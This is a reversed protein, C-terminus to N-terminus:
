YPPETLFNWPTLYFPLLFSSMLFDSDIRSTGHRFLLFEPLVCFVLSLLNDLLCYFLVNCFRTVNTDVAVLRVLARHIFFASLRVGYPRPASPWAGPVGRPPWRLEGELVLTGPTGVREVAVGPAPLCCAIAGFAPSLWTGM